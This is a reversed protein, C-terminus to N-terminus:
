IAGKLKKTIRKLDRRFSDNEHLDTLRKNALRYLIRLEKVRLRLIDNKGMASSSDAVELIKDLAREM